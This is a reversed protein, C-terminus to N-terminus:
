PSKSQRNYEKEAKDSKHIGVSSVAGSLLAKGWYNFIARSPDRKYFITGDRLFLFTPNRKKLVFTNAFFTKIGQGLGRTDHTEPNLIQVKLGSYNIKMKGQALEDNAKVNFWIKKSYGSKINIDAAPRLMKNLTNLPLDSIEGVLTFRDRSDALDFLAVAEFAGSNLLKGKAELRMPRNAISDTASIHYLSTQLDNFSIEGIESGATRKERYTVDGTLNITDLYVWHELNRLLTQPLSRKQDEPFPPAKDRYVLTEMGAIEIKHIRYREETLWEEYDIGDFSIREAKVDFWDNQSTLRSSYDEATFASELHLQSIELQNHPQHLRLGGAKLTYGDDLPLSMGRGEVLLPQEKQFLQHLSFTDSPQVNKWLINAEGLYYTVQRSSDRLDISSNSVELVGLKFPFPISKNPQTTQEAPLNFVLEPATITLTDAIVLQQNMLSQFDPNVVEIQPLIASNSGSSFSIGTITLVHDERSFSVDKVTLSDGNNFIHNITDISVEIENSYFLSNDDAQSNFPYHFGELTVEAQQLIVQDNFALDRGKLKIQGIELAMKFTDQEQQIMEDSSLDSGAINIALSDAKLVNTKWFDEQALGYLNLEPISISLGSTNEDLSKLPKIDIDNMNLNGMEDLLMLGIRLQHGAETSQGRIGQFQSAYVFSNQGLGMSTNLNDVQYSSSDGHSVEIQGNLVEVYKDGFSNEGQDKPFSSLNMQIRPSELFISDFALYDGALISDLQIGSVRSESARSDLTLSNGEHHLEWDRIDLRQFRESTTVEKATFLNHDDEHTVQKMDLNVERYLEHWSKTQDDLQFHQIHGNFQDVTIAPAISIQGDNVLLDGIQITQFGNKLLGYLQEVSVRKIERNPKMQEIAIEPQSLEVREILMRKGFLERYNIGHLAMLPLDITYLATSDELLGNNSVMLGEFLFTSDVSSVTLLDFDMRHISDPLYGSYDKIIIDMDQFYQKSRDFRYNTSDLLIDYLVIDARETQLHHFNYNKDRKTKIDLNTNILRFKGVRMREFIDILQAQLSNNKKSKRSPNAYTEADVNIRSDRLALEDMDLYDKQYASFYDVGKLTLHPVVIDYIVYNDEQSISKNVLNVPKIKLSDFTLVSDATSLVFRKFSLQHISDRLAFNQDNIEFEINESFFRKDPQSTSDMLLNQVLLDIGKLSFKSPNHEFLGNQIDFRDVQFVNLYNSVEKYLDGTQLSFSTDGSRENHTMKIKPDIVRVKEIVLERNLYISSTSKIDFVLGRLELSYFNNIQTSSLDKTSDPFLRVGSLTIAREWFDINLRDFELRYHGNTETEVLNYVIQASLYRGIRPLAVSALLLLVVLCSIIVIRKRHPSASM